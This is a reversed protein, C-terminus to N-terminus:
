VLMLSIGLNLSAESQAEAGDKEGDVEGKEEDKKREKGGTYNCHSEPVLLHRYGAATTVHGSHRLRHLERLEALERQAELHLPGSM